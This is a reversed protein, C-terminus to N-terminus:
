TRSADEELEGEDMTLRHTAFAADREQHTVHLITFGRETQLAVLERLVAIRRVDDLASLPEDLLLVPLCPALARCLAVIQREGGSLSRISRDILRAIGFRSALDVVDRGDKVGYRINGRVDLHPFLFGHQPVFGIGREEAPSATINRGRIRIEGSAPAVAGAMIELLTTKGSATPGTLVAHAGTPVSFTVDRLEFIGARTNIAICEIM